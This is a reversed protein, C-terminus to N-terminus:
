NAAEGPDSDCRTSSYKFWPVWGHPTWFGWQRVKPGMVLLTAARRVRNRRDRALVVRHRWEAPRRLLSFQSYWTRRGDPTDENYGGGIILSAFSWPHDHLCEDDDALFQHFMIAFLPCKFITLRLLYEGNDGRKIDEWQLFQYKGCIM